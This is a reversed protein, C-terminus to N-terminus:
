MSKRRFALLGGIFAGILAAPLLLSSRQDRAWWSFFDWRLMLITGVAGGMLAGITARILRDKLSLPGYVM